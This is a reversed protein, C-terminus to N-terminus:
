KTYIFGEDPMKGGLTVPDYAYLVRFFDTLTSRIEEARMFRINSWPIARAAIEAGPIIGLSDILRGAEVPHSSVWSAADRYRDLFQELRDRHERAFSAHVLIATQPLPLRDPQLAAWAEDLSLLRGLAPNQDLVMSAQPEAMVGYDVKGAAMAQALEIHTPFSYDLFVDRDPDLGHSFLLYRFLIDPIMGRAMLHIRKGSAQEWDWTEGAPGLLYLNGWVPVAALQYPLGRNYMLAGFNSPLVAVDVAERLMLARVQQPENYLSYLVTSDERSDRILPAMSMASPGRLTAIRM